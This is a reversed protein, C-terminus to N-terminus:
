RQLGGTAETVAPVPPYGGRGKEERRNERKDRENRRKSGWDLKAPNNDQNSEGLHRVQPTGHWALCVIVHVYFWRGRHKLRLYGDKDPSGERVEGCVRVRGLSSGEFVGGPIGHWRCAPTKRWTEAM